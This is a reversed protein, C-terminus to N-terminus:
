SDSVSNNRIVLAVTLLQTFMVDMEEVHKYFLYAKKAHLIIDHKRQMWGKNSFKCTNTKEIM